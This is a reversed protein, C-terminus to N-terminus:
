TFRAPKKALQKNIAMLAEVSESHDKVIKEDRHLDDIVEDIAPVGTKEWSRAPIKV